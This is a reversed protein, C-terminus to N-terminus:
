SLKRIKCLCSATSTRAQKWPPLHHRAPLYQAAIAMQTCDDCAMVTGGELELRRIGDQFLRFMDPKRRAM